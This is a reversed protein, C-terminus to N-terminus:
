SPAPSPRSRCCRIRLWGLLLATTASAFLSGIGALRGVYTVTKLQLPYQGSKKLYDDNLLWEGAESRGSLLARQDFIIYEQAQGVATYSEGTLAALDPDLPRVLIARKAQRALVGPVIVSALLGLLSLALVAKMLLIIRNM